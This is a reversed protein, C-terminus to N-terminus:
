RGARAADERNSGLQRDVSDKMPGAAGHELLAARPLKFHPGNRPKIKAPSKRLCPQNENVDKLKGTNETVKM